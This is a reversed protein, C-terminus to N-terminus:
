KCRDSLSLGYNSEIGSDVTQFSFSSILHKGEEVLVFTGGERIDTADPKMVFMALPKDDMTYLGQGLRVFGNESGFIYIDFGTDNECTFTGKHRLYDPLIIIPSSKEMSSGITIGSDFCFYQQFDQPYYHRRFLWGFCLLLIFVAGLIIWLKKHKTM